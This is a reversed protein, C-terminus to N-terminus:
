IDRYKAYLYDIATAALISIMALLLGAGIIKVPPPNGPCVSSDMIISSVSYYIDVECMDYQHCFKEKVQYNELCKFVPLYIVLVFFVVVFILAKRM